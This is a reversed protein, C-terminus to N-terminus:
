IQVVQRGPWKVRYQWLRYGVSSESITRADTLYNGQRNKKVINDRRFVDKVFRRESMRKAQSSIKRRIKM